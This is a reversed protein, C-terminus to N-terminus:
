VDICEVIDQIINKIRRNFPCSAVEVDIYEVIGEIINKIRRNFPYSAV